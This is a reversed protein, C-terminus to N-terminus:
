RTLYAYHCLILACTCIVVVLGYNKQKWLVFLGGGFTIAVALAFTYAVGIISEVIHMGLAGLISITVLLIWFNTMNKKM